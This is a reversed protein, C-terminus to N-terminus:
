TRIIISDDVVTLLQGFTSVRPHSDTPCCDKPHRYCVIRGYDPYQPYWHGSKVSLGPCGAGPQKEPEARDYAYVLINTDVLIRGSM